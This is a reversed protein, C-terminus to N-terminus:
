RDHGGLDGHHGHAANMAFISDAVHNEQQGGDRDSNKTTKLTRRQNFSCLSQSFYTVRSLFNYSKGDRVGDAWQCHSERQAAGRERPRQGWDHTRLLNYRGALYLESKSRYLRGHCDERLWREAPKGTGQGNSRKRAETPSQVTSKVGRILVFYGSQLFRRRGM